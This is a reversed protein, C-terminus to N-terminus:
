KGAEIVTISVVEVIDDVSCGRSLDNVPKALGQVIPGIAKAKAFRQVLKYGINGANLDPFILINANGQIMSDPCKKEAVDPVIAADLQLEGDIHLDPRLRKVLETASVVKDALPDKASGKTSFSLMAVKPDVGFNQASTATELAIYALEHVDPNIVFACDSFFYVQGQATEMFFFSSALPVHPKTRIIQLAPRLTEATPQTAGAVLGDARGSYVMMVGFTTFDQLAKRADEITINKHKRLIYYMEVYEDMHVDHEPDVVEVDAIDINLESAQKEIKSRSGLLIIKALKERLLIETARLIRDDGSEPLVINKPDSKARKKLNDLFDM